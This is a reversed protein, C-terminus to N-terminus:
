DSLLFVFLEIENSKRAFFPSVRGPDIEQKLTAFKASPALANWYWKRTIARDIVYDIAM